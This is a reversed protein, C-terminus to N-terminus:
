GMRGPNFILPHSLAIANIGGLDLLRNVSTEDIYSICDRLLHFGESQILYATQGIGFKPTTKISYLGKEELNFVNQYKNKIM